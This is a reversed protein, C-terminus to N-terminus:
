VVSKRDAGAAGAVPVALASNKPLARQWFSTPVFAAIAGSLLVGLVLFPLAQVIISVFITAGAQIKPSDFLGTIWRQGLLVVVLGLTLFELAGPRWRKQPTKTPAENATVTM